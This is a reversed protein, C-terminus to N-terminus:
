PVDGGRKCVYLNCASMYARQYGPDYKLGQFFSELEVEGTRGVRGLCSMEECVDEV